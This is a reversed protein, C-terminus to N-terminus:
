DADVACRFGIYQDAEDPMKQMDLFYRGSSAYNNWAGGSSIARPNLPNLYNNLYITDFHFLVPDFQGAGTGIPMAELSAPAGTAVPMGLPVLFLTSLHDM